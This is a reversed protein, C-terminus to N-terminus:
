PSVGAAPVVPVAITARVGGGPRSEITLAAREGFVGQLRARVTALGIGAGSSPKRGLGVGDDDVRIRLAPSAGDTLRAEIRVEGGAAKPSIGHRVANEVLTAVALAPLRLPACGPELEIAFRLRDGFRRVLIGLYAEVLACEDGVSWDDRRLAPLTRELYDILAALTADAQAPDLRYQRRVHALTNFLFHPEIRAELAAREADALATALRAAGLQESVLSQLDDRAGDALVLWGYVVGVVATGHIWWLVVLRPNIPRGMAWPFVVGYLVRYVVLTGALLAVLGAAIRLPTSSVGRARLWPDVTRITAWAVCADLVYYAYAIGQVTWAVRAGPVLWIEVLEMLIPLASVGLIWALPMASAVRPVRGRPWWSASKLFRPHM